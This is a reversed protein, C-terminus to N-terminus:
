AVELKNVRKDVHLGLWRWVIKTNNKLTADLGNMRKM